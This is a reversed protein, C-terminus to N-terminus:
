YTRSDTKRSRRKWGTGTLEYTSEVSYTDSRETM